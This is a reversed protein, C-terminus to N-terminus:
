RPIPREGPICPPSLVIQVIRDRHAYDPLISIEADPFTKRAYAV